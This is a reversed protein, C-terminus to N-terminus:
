LSPGRLRPAWPTRSESSPIDVEIAKLHSEWEELVEFISNSTVGELEAM